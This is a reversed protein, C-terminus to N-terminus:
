RPTLDRCAQLGQVAAQRWHLAAPQRVNDQPDPATEVAVRRAPSVWEKRPPSRTIAQGRLVLVGQPV